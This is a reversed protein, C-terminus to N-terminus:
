AAASMTVPHQQAYGFRNHLALQQQPLAQTSTKKTLKRKM